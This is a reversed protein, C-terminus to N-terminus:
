TGVAGRSSRATVDARTFSATAVPARRALAQWSVLMSGRSSGSGTPESGYTARPQVGATLRHRTRKGDAQYKHQAM